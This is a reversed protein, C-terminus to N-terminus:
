MELNSIRAIFGEPLAESEISLHVFVMRCSVSVVWNLIGSGFFVHRWSMTHNGNYYFFYEVSILFLVYLFLM